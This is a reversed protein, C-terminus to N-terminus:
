KLIKSVICVPIVPWQLLKAITSNTLVQRFDQRARIVAREVRGKKQLIWLKWQCTSHEFHMVTGVPSSAPILLLLWNSANQAFKSFQFRAQHTLQVLQIPRESAGLSETRASSRTTAKEPCSPILTRTTRAYGLCCPSANLQGVTMDLMKIFNPKYFCSV